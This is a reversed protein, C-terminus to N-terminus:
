RQADTQGAGVWAGAEERWRKPDWTIPFPASTLPATDPILTGSILHHTHSSCHLCGEGRGICKGQKAVARGGCGKGLISAAHAAASRTIGPNVTLTLRAAGGSASGM